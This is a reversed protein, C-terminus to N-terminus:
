DVLSPLAGAKDAPHQESAYDGDVVPPVHVAVDLRLVDEDRALAAAPARRLSTGHVLQEKHVEAEGTLLRVGRRQRAVDAGDLVARDVGHRAARPNSQVVDLRQSPHQQVDHCAVHRPELPDLPDVPVVLGRAGLEHLAHPLGLYVEQTGARLGELGPVATQRRRNPLVQTHARPGPALVGRGLRVVVPQCPQQAAPGYGALLVAALVDGCEVLEVDTAIQSQRRVSRIHAVGVEDRRVPVLPAKFLHSPVRDHRVDIGNLHQQRTVTTLKPDDAVPVPGLDEVRGRLPRALPVRLHDPRALAGVPVVPGDARLGACHDLDLELARRVLVHVQAAHGPPLQPVLAHLGGGHGPAHVRLVEQHAGPVLPGALPLHGPVAPAEREAHLQPVPERLAELDQLVAVPAPLQVGVHLARAGVDGVLEQAGLLVPVAPVPGDPGMRVVLGGEARLVHDPELHADTARLAHVPLPKSPLAAQGRGGGVRASDPRANGSLPTYM